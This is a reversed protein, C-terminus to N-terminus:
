LPDFRSTFPLNPHLSTHTFGCWSSKSTHPTSKKKSILSQAGTKKPKKKKLKLVAAQFLPMEPLEWVKKKGAQENLGTILICLTSLTRQIQNGCLERDGRGKEDSGWCEGRRWRAEGLERSEYESQSGKSRTIM